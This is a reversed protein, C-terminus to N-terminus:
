EELDGFLESVVKVMTENDSYTLRYCPMELFWDLFREANEPLPSIWSDPVLQQFAVDKPMREMVVGERDDGRLRPGKSALSPGERDDGRFRPGKGKILSGAEYKVFILAKCTYGGDEKGAVSEPALYRVTKDMGPYYFEAASELQPYLPILQDLATKKVSVAAPFYFVGGSVADVPVFDDALLDFGSAMLIATITSKGSGSDGLFMISQTGLSIASAHFVGMWRPETKGYMRNLMEMSFKGTLFHADEPLWQGILSGNVRLVLREQYHFVQFFHDASEGTHIELHAFKPHILYEMADDEYEVSYICDNLQYYKLSNFGAPLGDPVLDSFAGPDQDGPGSQQELLQQIESVFRKSESRPLHYLGAFWRATKDPEWGENMRTIVEYAPIELLSYRNSAGFWIIKKNEVSRELYNM